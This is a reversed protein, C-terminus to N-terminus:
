EDIVEFEDFSCLEEDVYEEGSPRLEPIGQSVRKGSFVGINMEPRGDTILECETGEVYWTDPLAIYKTM